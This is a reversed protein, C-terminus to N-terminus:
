FAFEIEGVDFISDFLKDSAKKAEQVILKSLKKVGLLRDQEAKEQVEHLWPYDNNYYTDSDLRAESLKAHSKSILKFRLHDENVRKGPRSETIVEGEPNWVFAYRSYRVSINWLKVFYNTKKNFITGGFDIINLSSLLKKANKVRSETIGLEAAIRYDQLTHSKRNGWPRRFAKRNILQIVSVADKARRNTSRKATALIM